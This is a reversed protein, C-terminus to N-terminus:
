RAYMCTVSHRSRRKSTSCLCTAFLYMSVFGGIVRVRGKEGVRFENGIYVIGCWVLLLSVCDLFPLFWTGV